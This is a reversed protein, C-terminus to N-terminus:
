TPGRSRPDVVNSVFTVEAPARSRVAAKLDDGVADVFSERFQRVEDLRGAELHREDAPSLGGQFAIALMNGAMHARPDVPTAEYLLAFQDALGSAIGALRERSIPSASEAAGTPQQRTAM